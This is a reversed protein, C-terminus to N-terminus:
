NRVRELVARVKSEVVHIPVGLRQGHEAFYDEVSAEYVLARTRAWKIYAVYESAMSSSTTDELKALRSAM